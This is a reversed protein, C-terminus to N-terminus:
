DCVKIYTTTWPSTLGHKYSAARKEANHGNQEEWPDPTQGKGERKCLKERCKRCVIPKAFPHIRCKTYRNTKLNPIPTPHRATRQLLLWDDLSSCNSMKTCKLSQCHWRDKDLQRYAIPKSLPPCPRVSHPFHFRRYRKQM